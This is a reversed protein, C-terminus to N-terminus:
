LAGLEALAAEVQPLAEPWYNRVYELEVWQDRTRAEHRLFTRKDNEVHHEIRGNPHVILWEEHPNSRGIFIKTNTAVGGGTTWGQGGAAKRARICRYGEAVSEWIDHMADYTDSAYITKHEGM